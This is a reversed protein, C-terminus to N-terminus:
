EYIETMYPITFKTLDFPVIAEINGLLSIDDPRHKAVSHLSM